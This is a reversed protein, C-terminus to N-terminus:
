KLSSEYSRSIRAEGEHRKLAVNILQTLLDTFSIGREKWMMPFMSADTFGPISNIENVYVERDPTLFLDVRAFDNCCLAQYAKVSLARIKEAVESALPAPVKIEVADQSVYKADFTYFDYAPNIVIEGPCSAEPKENGMVACEIERAKVFKEFLVCDDYQFSDSLAKKYGEEDSVKSIGVSSGLGAAKVMFPTGLEKELFSFAPPPEHFFHARFPVVPIGAQQLLRKAILKNMALASGQVDSGVVKFGATKLLGQISGDEGGTGHLVPFAIDAEWKDGFEDIFFPNDPSLGLSVERGKCIDKVIGKTKCWYGDQSIGIPIPEFLARDIYRFINRASNVSVGHEVSRGGYIIVIKTKVM